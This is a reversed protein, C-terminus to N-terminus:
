KGRLHKLAAELARLRRDQEEGSLSHEHKLQEIIEKDIKAQKEVDAKQDKIFQDMALQKEVLAKGQLWGGYISLGIFATFAGLFFATVTSPPLTPFLWQGLKVGGYGVAFWLVFNWLDKKWNKTAYKM